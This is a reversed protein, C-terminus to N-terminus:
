PLQELTAKLTDEIENYFGRAIVKGEPSILIAFPVGPLYLEDDIYANAPNEKYVTPWKHAALSDIQETLYEDSGYYETKKWDTDTLGLIDFGKCHYKEYLPVIRPNAWFTGPCMGWNLLM